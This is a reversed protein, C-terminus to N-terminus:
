LWHVLPDLDTILYIMHIRYRYMAEARPSQSVIVCLYRMGMTIGM